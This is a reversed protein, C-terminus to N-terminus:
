PKRPPLIILPIKLQACADEFAAMFESGGDVQVSKIVFLARLIWYFDNRAALKPTLFFGLM